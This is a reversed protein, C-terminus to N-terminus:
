LDDIRSGLRCATVVLSFAVAFGEVMMVILFAIAVCMLLQDAGFDSQM